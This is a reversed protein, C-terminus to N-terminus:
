EDSGIEDGFVEQLEALMKADKEGAGHCKLIWAFHDAIAHTNPHYEGLKKRAIDISRYLLSKAEDYREMNRLLKSYFHLDRAHAPHESDFLELDLEIVEKFYKESEEYRELLRLDEALGNLMSIFTENKREGVKEAIEIAKRHLREASNYKKEYVYVNALNALNAAYDMTDEKNLSRMIDLSINFQEIAEEGRGLEYLQAAFMNNAVSFDVSLKGCRTKIMKLLESSVSLAPYYLGAKWLYQSAKQLGQESQYFAVSTQFHKAAELWDIREEAIIGLGYAAQSARRLSDEQDRQVEIFVKEALSTDGTELASVAAVIKEDGVDTGADSLAKELIKIKLLSEQYAPEINVIRAELESKQAELAQRESGESKLVLKSLESERDRLRRDYEEITLTINGASRTQDYESNKKIKNRYIKWIYGIAVLLSTVVGVILTLAGQRTNGGIFSILEELNQIFWDM